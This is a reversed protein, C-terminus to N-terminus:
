KRRNWVHYQPFHELLANYAMEIEEPIEVHSIYRKGNPGYGNDDDRLRVIEGMCLDIVREMGWYHSVVKEFSESNESTHLELPAFSVFECEVGSWVHEFTAHTRRQMTPDQILLIKKPVPIKMGMILEQVKALSFLANEGCNTSDSELFVREKVESDLLDFFYESESHGSIKKSLQADLLRQELYHTSHGIGGSFLVYKSVNKVLLRQALLASEFVSSGLVIILDFKNFFLTEESKIDRRSLFNIITFLKEMKENMNM